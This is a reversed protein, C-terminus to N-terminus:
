RLQFVKGWSNRDLLIDVAPRAPGAIVFWCVFWFAAFCAVVGPHAYDPTISFLGVIDNDPLITAPQPIQENFRNAVLGALVALSITSTDTGSVWDAVLLVYLPFGIFFIRTTDSGGLLAMVLCLLLFVRPIAGSAGAEAPMGPRNRLKCLLFPGLTMSVCAAARLLEVPRLVKHKISVFITQLQGYDTGPLQLLLGVLTGALAVACVTIGTVFLRRDSLCIAAGLALAFYLGSERIPISAVFTFGAALYWKRTIFLTALSYFMIAPPDVNYPYFNTYRLPSYVYCVMPVLCAFTVGPTFKTRLALYTFVLAILGCSLNIARFAFQAEMPLKSALWPVGVRKNFPAEYVQQSNDGKFHLYMSHYAVGDWGKGGAVEVQPQKYYYCAAIFLLAGLVVSTKIASYM